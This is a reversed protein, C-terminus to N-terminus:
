HAQFPNKEGEKRLLEGLTEIAQEERPGWSAANLRLCHHYRMGASFLPGPAFVVGKARAKPYLKLSDFHRPLEVWLVFGGRPDSVRTGEPFHALVTERMARSRRAYERRQQRLIRDFASGQLYNAMGLALVSPSALNSLTKLHQVQERYRGPVAYGLRYGPALTKSFSSCYLVGGDRDFAKAAPLRKLGYGLEGYVDDEILPVHARACMGVLERRAEPSMLSGSPNSHSPTAVVAKVPMQDIALELADLSLGSHPDSPIELVRLGLMEIAQLQGYFTPSEIAVVDGVSCVARLCLTLAEQAGITLVVEDPSFHCGALTARKAVAVRLERCGPSTDYETLCDSIRVANSVCKQLAKIPLLDPAADAGALRVVDPAHHDRLLNVVMDIVTVPVPDTPAPCDATPCRTDSGHLRVYYGSQPRAELLGQDELLRYAEVVTTTSVELERSLDRVSPVREGYNYVGKEVLNAVRNAVNEYLKPM